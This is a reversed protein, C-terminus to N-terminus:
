FKIARNAKFGKITREIYSGEFSPDHEFFVAWGEDACRSLYRKKEELTILPYNDYSMIYPLQVHSSTPIMDGPHFITQEGDSIIVLQQAITHGDSLRIFLGPYLEIEGELLNLQRHEWIPLFNEVIFSAQDRETPKLAWEYQRKQVHYVANPFAPVIKGDKDVSTAGGAHDFHLHTIIVDTIDSKKLGFTELSNELNNQTQDIAYIDHFKNDWKTGIGTDVLIVKKEDRVLMVRLALEIRNREDSPNTKTWLMKPIVGFMAGGDLRFRGAELAKIDYNGVKM